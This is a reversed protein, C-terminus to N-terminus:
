QAGACLNPLQFSSFDTCIMGRPCDNKVLDCGSIICTHTQFSDCFNADGTCDGQGTCSNGVGSFTRCYPHAEWTACTYAADCDNSSTCAKTCTGATGSGSAACYSYTADRCPNSATDCADGLGAVTICVNSADKTQGAPCACGATGPVEDAACRKCGGAVAVANSDCVCANAADVFHMASGCRQDPNYLCASIALAIVAAGLCAAGTRWWSKSM